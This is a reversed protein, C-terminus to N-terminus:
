DIQQARERVLAEHRKEYVARQELSLERWMRGLVVSSERGNAWPKTGNTEKALMRKEACFLMFANPPQKAKGPAVHGDKGRQREMLVGAAAATAGAQQAATSSGGGGGGVTKRGGGGDSSGSGGVSSGGVAATRALEALFRAADWLHPVDSTFAMEPNKTGLMHHQGVVPSSWLRRQPWLRAPPGLLSHHWGAGARVTRFPRQELKRPQERQGAKKQDHRGQDGPPAQPQVLQVSAYQQSTPGSALPIPAYQQQPPLILGQVSYPAQQLSSAPPQPVVSAGGGWPGLGPQGLSPWQQQQQQVAGAGGGWPGLEPQGLSPWHQLLQAAGGGLPGPGRQVPSPQQLQERGAGAGLPWLQQQQAAGGGLPGPGRQVPSPQQLQERGACAGLLWLQQQQAAGAGGGLPGPGRQVPSPQQLQERGAGAGLPWLQQQQAAGAGGGLPGPGRQVPSPQQLQERGAGAGGGLPGPGRQGLSPQPLQQQQPAVGAGGGLLGPGRQVASPQQLQQQPAAGAGLPWQQQQQAAGAGGGLPGPGRQVPSPQQLQQQPAAGAGLPWQQLQGLSPQQQQPAAGAGLPGLGHQVPWPQWQTAASAGQGLPGLGCQGYPPHEEQQQQGLLPQQQPPQLMQQQALALPLTGLQRTLGWLMDLVVPPKTAAIAGNAMAQVYARRVACWSSVQHLRLVLPNGPATEALELCDQVACAGFFELAEVNYPVSLRAGRGSSKVQAAQTRLDPLFSFLALKCEEVVFDPITVAFRPAWHATALQDPGSCPFGHLSLLASPPQQCLYSVVAPDRNWRGIRKIADLGHGM